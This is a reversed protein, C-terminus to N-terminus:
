DKVEEIEINRQRYYREAASKLLKFSTYSQRLEPPVIGKEFKLRWLCSQEDMIGHLQNGGKFLRPDVMGTSDLPKGDIPKLVLIRNPSRQKDSNQEQTM